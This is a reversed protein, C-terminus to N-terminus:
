KKVFHKRFFDCEADNCCKAEEMRMNCHFVHWLPNEETGYVRYEYPIGHAKLEEVLMPAQDVLFDGLATMVFCPVYNESIFHIPSMQYFEEETGGKQFVQKKLICMLEDNEDDELLYLGCNLAVANLKITEPPQFNYNKGYDKHTIMSVYLSLLQAGASDGLAFLNDTDLGYEEAHNLVWHFVANTDELHAPFKHEPALRYTFNVVAFGREALGMCYYQYTEKSGYVWAGGHVSVIVPLKKGKMKKPRYVDLVQNKQDQGYVIDDFREITDPTVLGQDRIADGAGYDKRIEEITLAM